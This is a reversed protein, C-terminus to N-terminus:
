VGAASLYAVDHAVIHWRERLAFHMQCSSKQFRAGVTHVDSQLVGAAQGEGGGGDGDVLGM